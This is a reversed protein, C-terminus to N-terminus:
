CRSAERHRLIKDADFTLRYEKCYPDGDSTPPPATGGRAQYLWMTTRDALYRTESPPGSRQAIETQTAHNLAEDLYQERWPTCSLTVAMLLASTLLFHYRVWARM